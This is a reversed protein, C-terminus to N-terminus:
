LGAPVKLGIASYVNAIEDEDVDSVGTRLNVGFGAHSTVRGFEDRLMDDVHGALYVDHAHGDADYVKANPNFFHGEDWSWTAFVVAVADTFDIEDLQERIEGILGALNGRSSAADLEDALVGRELASDVVGFLEQARSWAGMLDDPTSNFVEHLEALAGLATVTKTM